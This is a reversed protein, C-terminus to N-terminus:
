YVFPYSQNESNLARISISDKLYDILYVINRDKFYYIRYFNSNDLLLEDSMVKLSKANIFSSQSYRTNEEIYKVDNQKVGMEFPIVNSLKSLNSFFGHIFRPEFEDMFKRKRNKFVKIAYNIDNNLPVLTCKCTSDGAISSTQYIPILVCNLSDHCIVVESYLHDDSPVYFDFTIDIEPYYVSKLLSLEQSKYNKLSKFYSYFPRVSDTVFEFILSDMKAEINISNDKGKRNCSLFFMVVGVIFLVQKRM